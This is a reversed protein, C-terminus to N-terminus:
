GPPACAPCRRGPAAALSGALVTAGCLARFRGRAAALGDLHDHPHIRHALGDAGCTLDVYAVAPAPPRTRRRM